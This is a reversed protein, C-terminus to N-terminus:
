TGIVGTLTIRATSCGRAASDTIKVVVYYETVLLAESRPQAQFALPALSVDISPAANDVGGCTSIGAFGLGSGAYNLGDFSGIAISSSLDFSLKVGDADALTFSYRFSFDNCVEANDTWGKCDSATLDGSYSANFQPTVEGGPVDFPAGLDSIEDEARDLDALAEDREEVVRQVQSSLDSNDGTAQALDGTVNSLEARVAALDASTADLTDNTNGLSVFGIVTTVVAAMAVLTCGILSWRAKRPWRGARGDPVLQEVAAIPTPVAAPLAALSTSHSAPASWAAAPVHSSTSSRGVAVEGGLLADYPVLVSEVEAACGQSLTDALSRTQADDSETLCRWLESEAPRELDSRTFLLNEGSLFRRLSPDAQLGRLALDILAAPFSDVFQGWHGTTRRPHQYNPHGFEAPPGVQIEPVWVGDLDVLAIADDDGVMVNGHQLDGHAVGAAQLTRVVDAWQERLGHLRSPEDLLDEVASNLPLGDVWPMVVTPWWRGNVLIGEDAWRADTLATTTSEGLHASLASYRVAGEHPPTLFCRVARRGVDTEVLFVVANQGSAVMPMGMANVGPRGAALLPDTFSGGPTQVARAYDTGTPWVRTTGRATSGSTKTRPTM